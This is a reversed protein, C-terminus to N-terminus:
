HQTCAQGVLVNFTVIPIVDYSQSERKYLSYQLLVSEERKYNNHVRSIHMIYIYNTCKSIFDSHTLTNIFDAEDKKTEQPLSFYIPKFAGFSAM